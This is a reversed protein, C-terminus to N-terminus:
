SCPKRTCGECLTGARAPESKYFVRWDGKAQQYGWVVECEVKSGPRLYRIHKYVNSGDGEGSSVATVTLTPNEKLFAAKVQKDKLAGCAMAAVGLMVVLLGGCNRVNMDSGEERGGSGGPSAM